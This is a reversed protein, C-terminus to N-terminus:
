RFSTTVRVNKFGAAEMQAKWEKAEQRMSKKEAKTSEIVTMECLHGGSDRFLTPQNVRPTSLCLGM